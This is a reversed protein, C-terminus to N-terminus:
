SSREKEAKDSAEKWDSEADSTNARHKNFDSQAQGDSKVQARRIKFHSWARLILWPLIFLIAKFIYSTTHQRWNKLVDLPFM